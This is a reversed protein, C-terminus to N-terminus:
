CPYEEIKVSMFLKAALLVTEYLRCTKPLIGM